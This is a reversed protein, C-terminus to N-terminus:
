KKLKYNIEYVEVLIFWLIGEIKEGGGTGKEIVLSTNRERLYLLMM